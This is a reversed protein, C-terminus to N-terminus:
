WDPDPPPRRHRHRHRNHPGCAPRGNDQATLGGASFPEIHDIQCRTAPTDCCPHYCWRDRVKVLDRLAGTFTRRRSVSIVRDPTGDFLYRGIDAESIWPVLASPAVVQGSALEILRSLSEAGLVVQFLPRPPRGDDPMTKSRRAMEVLADARRQDPTREHEGAKPDRGLREKIRAREETFLDAEIRRLEDGFTEASVPDLVITGCGMGGLTTDFSVRRRDRRDVDAADAGDPDARLEWYAMAQQFEHFAMTKAHDVLVTEDRELLVATRHNRAALIRRVHAESIEGAAWAAAVLPLHRLRRALSVQSGCEPKPRGTEKSLFAACSRAGTDAWSRRADFAAILSARVADLSSSLRHLELVISQLEDDDLTAPDLANLEKIELELGALRM